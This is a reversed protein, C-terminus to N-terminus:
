EVKRISDGGGLFYGIMEGVAGATMYVGILPSCFLYRGVLRRRQLLHGLNRLLLLPPLLASGIGYKLRDAARFSVCRMGAFSRCFYYRQTIFYWFDFTRQHNIVLAPDFTLRLGERALRDHYFSEWLGRELVELLGPVLERRYAVNNGPLGNVIGDRNPRVVGAYETLFAAWDRIRSTCANEVPGGVVDCGGSIRSRIRAAWDPPAVCHDETVAVISGRARSVGISRLEPISAGPPAGELVVDPCLSRLKEQLSAPHRTAVIIEEPPATQRQLAEIVPEILRLPNVWAIVVSLSPESSPAILQPM